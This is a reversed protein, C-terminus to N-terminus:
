SEANEGEPERSKAKTPAKSVELKSTRNRHMGVFVFTIVSAFIDMQASFSARVIYM